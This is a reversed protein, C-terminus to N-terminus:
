GIRGIAVVPLPIASCNDHRAFIQNFRYRVKSGNTARLRGYNGRAVYEEGFRWAVLAQQRNEIVWLGKGSQCSCQFNTLSKAQHLSNNYLGLVDLSGVSM